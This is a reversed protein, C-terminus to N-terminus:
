SKIRLTIVDATVNLDIAIQISCVELKKSADKMMQVLACKQRLSKLHMDTLLVAKKIVAENCSQVIIIDSFKTIWILNIRM